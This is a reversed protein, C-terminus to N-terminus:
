KVQANFDAEVSFAMTSTQIKDSTVKGAITGRPGNISKFHFEPVVELFGGDYTGKPHLLVVRTVNGNSAINLLLGYMDNPFTADLESLNADSALAKDTLIVRTDNKNTAENRQRGIAYAYALPVKNQGVTLSGDVRGLDAAAVSVAVWLLIVGIAVKRM